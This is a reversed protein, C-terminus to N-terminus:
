STHEESREISHAKLIDLRVPYLLKKLINALLKESPSVFRAPVPPHLNGLPIAFSSPESNGGDLIANYLSRYLKDHLRDKFCVKVLTRKSVPGPTRGVLCQISNHVPQCLSEGSNNVYIKPAVEVVESVVDQQCFYGLPYLVRLYKM